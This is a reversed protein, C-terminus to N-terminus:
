FKISSALSLLALVIPVVIAAIEGPTMDSSSESKSSSDRESSKDSSLLRDYLGAENIGAAGFVLDSAESQSVAKGQAIPAGWLWDKGDIKIGNIRTYTSNEFAPGISIVGAFKKAGDQEEIWIPGGSDGSKPSRITASFGGGGRAARHFKGCTVDNTGTHSTEGHYCTKAGRKISTADAKIDGSYINEGMTVGRDWEIWAFDNSYQRDYGPSIRLTGIDKSLPRSTKRDVLLIRDGDRGCHAATYSVGAEHDNFGLTCSSYGTSIADGQTPQIPAATASLVLVATSCAAVALSSIFKRTLM